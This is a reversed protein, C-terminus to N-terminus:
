LTKASEPLLRLGNPLIDKIVVSKQSVNGVNTYEIDLELIDGINAEINKYWTKDENDALRVKTDVTFDINNSSNEIDEETIPYSNIININNNNNNNNNNQINSMQSMWFKNTISSSAIGSVAGSIVGIIAILIAVKSKEKM